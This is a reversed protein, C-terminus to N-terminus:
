EPARHHQQQAAQGGGSTAPPAPWPAIGPQKKTGDHRHARNRASSKSGACPLQDLRSRGALYRATPAATGATRAPRDGAPASARPRYRPPRIRAPRIPRYWARTSCRGRALPKVLAIWYPPSLRSSPNIHEAASSTSHSRQFGKCRAPQATPMRSPSFPRQQGLRAPAPHHQGHRQQQADPELPAQGGAPGNDAGHQNHQPRHAQHGELGVLHAQAHILRPLLDRLVLRPAIRGARHPLAQRM